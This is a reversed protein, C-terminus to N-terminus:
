LVVVVAAAMVVGTVGGGGGGGRGGGGNGSHHHHHCRNDSIDFASLRVLSGIQPPISGSLENGHLDIVNLYICM